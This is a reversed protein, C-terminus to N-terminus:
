SLFHAVVEAAERPFQYIMGHGGGNIRAVTAGPLLGAMVDSNCPPVVIDKTGTLLLTKRNLGYLRDCTGKWSNIALAQEKVTELDDTYVKLPGAEFTKTVGPHRKIWSPPFLLDPVRETLQQPTGDLCFLKEAVEQSPPVAKCGGCHGAYLVLRDVNEPYGLALEQAIFSGMSWGLINTKGLSLADILAATDEALHKISISSRGRESRGMGRNDFTIVKFRALLPRIFSSGWYDMTAAMGTVLLLPEGKGEISYAFSTGDILVHRNDM